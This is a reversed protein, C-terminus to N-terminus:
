HSRLKVLLNKGRSKMAPSGNITLEEIIPKIKQIMKKDNGALDALAQMTFTVVIKSKDNLYRQLEVIMKKREDISLSLRPIFQCLHWRVEQQTVNNVLAMLKNKYPHLLELNNKILKEIADASRMAILENESSLGDILVTFLTPNNKVTEVANDVGKVM